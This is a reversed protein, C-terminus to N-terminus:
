FWTGKAGEEGPRGCPPLVTREIRVPELAHSQIENYRKRRERIIEGNFHFLKEDFLAFPEVSSGIFALDRTMLQPQELFRCIDAFQPGGIPTLLGRTLCDRPLAVFALM